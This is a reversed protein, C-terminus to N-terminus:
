YYLYKRSCGMGSGSTSCSNQQGDEYGYPKVSKEMIHILFIDKGLTNPEKFGNVDAQIEGCINPLGGMTYNTCDIRYNQFRILVGDNLIVSAYGSSDSYWINADAIQGSMARVTHLNHWCNGDGLGSLCFKSFSLYPKFLNMVCSNNWDSCLGIFTSGNDQIIRMHAQSITSYVKKWGAKNEAEQTNNIINPVTLSAVVGIVLLTILVEALTFGKHCNVGDNRPTFRCFLRLIKRDGRETRSSTLKYFMKKM